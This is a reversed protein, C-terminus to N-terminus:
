IIMLVRSTLRRSLQTKTDTYLRWTMQFPSYADFYKWTMIQLSHFPLERHYKVFIIILDIKLNYVKSSEKGIHHQYHQENAANCQWTLKQLKLKMPLIFGEDEYELCFYSCTWLAFLVSTRLPLPDYTFSMRHVDPSHLRRASHNKMYKIHLNICGPLEM